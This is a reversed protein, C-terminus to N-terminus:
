TFWPSREVQPAGALLGLLPRANLTSWYLDPGDRWDLAEALTKATYTGEVKVHGRARALTELTGPGPWGYDPGLRTDVVQISAPEEGVLESIEKALRKLRRLSLWSEPVVRVGHVQTSLGGMRCGLALGLASGGTGLAIAIRKPEPLLGERVQEALELGARVFGLSGFRSSGGAPIVSGKPAAMLAAKAEPLGAMLRLSAANKLTVRLSTAPLPAWIRPVALAHVKHGMAQAHLVTALVHNSGSAGITTLEPPAEHLLFELKRVKNGGYLPSLGGDDKLWLGPRLAELSSVPSPTTCLHVRRELPDGTKVAGSM